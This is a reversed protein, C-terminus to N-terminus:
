FHPMASTTRVNRSSLKRWSALMEAEAQEVEDVDNRVFRDLSFQQYRTAHFGHRRLNM